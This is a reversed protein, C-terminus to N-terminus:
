TKLRVLKPFACFNNSPIVKFLEAFLKSFKPKDTDKDRKTKGNQADHKKKTYQPTSKYRNVHVGV